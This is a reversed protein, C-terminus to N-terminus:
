ILDSSSRGADVKKPLKAERRENKAQAYEGRGLTRHTGGPGPIQVFRNTCIRDVRGPRKKAPPPMLHAEEDWAVLKGYEVRIEEWMETLSLNPRLRLLLAYKLDRGLVGIPADVLRRQQEILKKRESPPLAQFNLKKLFDGTNIFVHTNGPGPHKVFEHTGVQTFDGPARADNIHSLRPLPLRNITALM